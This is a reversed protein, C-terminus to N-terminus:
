NSGHNKLEKWNVLGFCKKGKRVKLLCFFIYRKDIYNSEELDKWLSEKEIIDSFAYITDIGEKNEIAVNLRYFYKGAFKGSYSKDREKDKIRGVLEHLKLSKEKKAEM